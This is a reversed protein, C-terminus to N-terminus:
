TLNHPSRYVLIIVQKSLMPRRIM